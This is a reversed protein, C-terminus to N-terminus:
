EKILQYDKEDVHGFKDRASIKLINYGHILAFDESFNGKQDISIERDNLTLLTANKATGTIKLLDEQYKTGNAINVNKIKVGFLLDKSRFFAYTIIFIFLFILLGFGLTKKTGNQM